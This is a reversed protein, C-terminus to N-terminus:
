LRDPKRHEVVEITASKLRVIAHRFSSLNLVPQGDRAIYNAYLQVAVARRHRSPLAVASLATGPPVQLSVVDVSRGLSSVIANKQAFWEPATKPAVAVGARDYFFVLDVATASVQNADADASVHVQRLAASSDQASVTAILAFLTLFLRFRM